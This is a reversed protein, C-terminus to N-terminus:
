KRKPCSVFHGKQDSSKALFDTAIRIPKNRCRERSAKINEQTSEATLRHWAIKQDHRNLARGAEQAQTGM